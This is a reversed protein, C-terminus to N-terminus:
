KKSYDHIALAKSHFSPMSNPKVEKKIQKTACASFTFGVTFVFLSMIFKNKM